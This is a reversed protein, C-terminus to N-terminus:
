RSFENIHERQNIHGNNDNFGESLNLHGGDDGGENIVAGSNGHIGNENVNAHRHQNQVLTQAQIMQLPYMLASTLFAITLAALILIQQNM